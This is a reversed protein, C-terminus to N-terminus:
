KDLHRNKRRSQIRKRAFKAQQETELLCDELLKLRRENLLGGDDFGPARRKLHVIFECGDPPSISAIAWETLKLHNLELMILAFNAPTFHWAHCDVYLSPDQRVTAALNSAEELQNVFELKSVPEQGWMVHQGTWVSYALHNFVTRGGHRTVEEANAAIFDGTMSAPKFYDFCYRKDPVALTIVGDNALLTEASKLFALPDPMHELVHSAILLDFTGHRERPIAQELLGDSWISDVAEIRDVDISHGRYKDILDERSLHDVTWTSWGESRPAIPAFSPGIEIISKQKDAFKLLNASRRRMLELGADPKTRKFLRKLM